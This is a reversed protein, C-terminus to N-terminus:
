NEWGNDEGGTNGGGVEDTNILDYMTGYVGINFKSVQVDCDNTGGLEISSWDIKSESKFVNPLNGINDPQNIYVFWKNENPVNIISSDSNGTAIDIKGRAKSIKMPIEYKFDVTYIIAQECNSSGYTVPERQILYVEKVEDNPELKQEINGENNKIIPYQTGNVKGDGNIYSNNQIEKILKDYDTSYSGEKQLTGEVIMTVNMELGHGARIVQKLQKIGYLGLLKDEAIKTQAEWAEPYLSNGTVKDQANKDNSWLSSVLKSTATVTVSADNNLDVTQSSKCYGPRYNGKKKSGSSHKWDQYTATGAVGSKICGLPNSATPTLKDIGFDYINNALNVETAVPSASSGTFDTNVVIRLNNAGNALSELPISYDLTISNGGTISVNKTDLLTGSATFLKVITNETTEVNDLAVYAKFEVTNKTGDNIVPTTKFPVYIDFDLTTVDVEGFEVGIYMNNKRNTEKPIDRPNIEITFTGGPKGGAAPPTINIDFMFLESSGATILDTSTLTQTGSEGNTSKWDLKIEVPIEGNAAVLDRGNLTGIIGISADGTSEDYFFKYDTVALDVEAPKIDVIAYNNDLSLEPALETYNVTEGGYLMTLNNISEIEPKLRNNTLTLEAKSNADYVGTIESFSDNPVLNAMFMVKSNPTATPKAKWKVTILKEFKAQGKTADWVRDYIDVGNKTYKEKTFQVEKYDLYKSTPINVFLEATTNDVPISTMEIVEVDKGIVNVYVNESAVNDPIYPMNDFRVRLTTSKTGDSNDKTSSEVIEVDRTMSVPALAVDIYWMGGKNRMGMGQGWTFMTPFETIAFHNLFADEKQKLKGEELAKAFAPTTKIRTIAKGSKTTGNEHYFLGEDSNTMDGEAFWDTYTTNGNEILKGNNINYYGFVVDPNFSRAETRDDIERIGTKILQVLEDKTAGGTINELYIAQGFEPKDLFWSINRFGKISGDTDYPYKYYGTYEAFDKGMQNATGVDEVLLNSIPANFIGRGLTAYKSVKNYDVFDSVNKEFAIVTRVHNMSMIFLEFDMIGGFTNNVTEFNQGAIPRGGIFMPYKKIIERTKTGETVKLGKEDRGSNYYAMDYSENYAVLFKRLVSNRGNVIHSDKAINYSGEFIGNEYSPINTPWVYVQSTPTASKYAEIDDNGIMGDASVYTSSSYLYLAVVDRINFISTDSLLLNEKEMDKLENEYDKAFATDIKLDGTDYVKNFNRDNYVDNVIAKSPPIVGKESFFLAINSTYNKL